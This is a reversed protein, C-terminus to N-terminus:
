DKKKGGYIVELREKLMNAARLAEKHIHEAEIIMEAATKKRNNWEETLLKKLEEIDPNNLNFTPRKFMKNIIYYMRLDEKVTLAMSPTAVSVAGILAHTRESLIFDCRKMLGKLESESYENSIATIRDKGKPMANYIDVMMRRDDNNFTPGICHPIFVFHADTTDLLHLFIDVWFKVRLENKKALNTESSFSKDFVIGGRVPVVGYLPKESHNPIAEIRLIENVRENSCPKLLVAPDPFVYIKEPNVGNAILTDKTNIDRVTFIISHNSIFQLFKRVKIRQNRGNFDNGGGFLAIPKNMIKAALVMWFQDDGLLGNHGSIILNSNSMSYLLNDKILYNAINRSFRAMLSFIILKGFTKLLYFRSRQLPKELFQNSIDWIDIGDVITIDRYRKKDDNIWAPPSYLTLNVDGCVALAEQIGRLIAAEGKNLSPIPEPIVVKLM